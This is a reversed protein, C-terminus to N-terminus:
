FSYFQKQSTSTFPTYYNLHTLGVLTFGDFIAFLLLTLNVGEIINTVKNIGISLEVVSKGGFIVINIILAADVIISLIDENESSFSDYLGISLYITQIKYSSIFVNNGPNEVLITIL